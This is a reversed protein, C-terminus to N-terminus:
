SANLRERNRWNEYMLTARVSNITDPSEPKSLYHVNDRNLRWKTMNFAVIIFTKDIGELFSKFEEESVGNPLFHPSYIVIVESHAQEIDQWDHIEEFELDVNDSLAKMLMTRNASLLHYIGINKSM